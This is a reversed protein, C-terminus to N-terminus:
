VCRGLGFCDCLWLGGAVRRFHGEVGALGRGPVVAGLFAAALAVAARRLGVALLVLEVAAGVVGGVELGFGTRAALRRLRHLRLPLLVLIVFLPGPALLLSPGGLLIPPLPAPGAMRLLLPLLCSATSPNSPIHKATRRPQALM